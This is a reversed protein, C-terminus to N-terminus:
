ARGEGGKSEADQARLEAIRDDILAIDVEVKLIKEGMMDIYQEDTLRKLPSWSWGGTDDLPKSEKAAMRNAVLQGGAGVLGWLVMAPM